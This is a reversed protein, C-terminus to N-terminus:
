SSNVGLGKLETTGAWLQALLVRRWHGATIVELSQAASQGHLVTIM